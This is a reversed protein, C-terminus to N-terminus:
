EGNRFDNIVQQAISAAKDDTYSTSYEEPHNETKVTKKRQQENIIKAEVTGNTTALLLAGGIVHSNVSINKNQDSKAELSLSAIGSEKLLEDMYAEAGEVIDDNTYTIKIKLKEISTAKIIEEFIDQSQEVFIEYQEDANIYKKLAEQLFIYVNSISVNSSKAIAFRHASPIFIYDTEQLNPFRNKPIEVEEVELNEINIWDKGEIKTFKAIKGYYYPANSALNFFQTRLIMEKDQKVAVMIKQAFLAKILSEYAKDGKRNNSLLKVNFLYYKAEKPKPAKNKM